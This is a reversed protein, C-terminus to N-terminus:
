TYLGRYMESIKNCLWQQKIQLRSFAGVSLIWRYAKIQPTRGDTQPTQLLQHYLPIHRWYLTAYSIEKQPFRVEKVLIEGSIAHNM